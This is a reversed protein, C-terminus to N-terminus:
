DDRAQIVSDRVSKLFKIANTGGTGTEGVASRMAGTPDLKARNSSPQRKAMVVVYRTVMQIHAQRLQLLATLCNEYAATLLVNESWSRVYERINPMQEAKALFDRHKRPMYLRMEKLYDTKTSGQNEEHKVGLIIDVFAFLSSQANSPGCYKRYRGGDHEEFFVGELSRVSALNKTGELFPRLKHYFFNQSCHQYMRPLLSTMDNLTVTARELYTILQEADQNYAAEVAQLMTPILPAGCEEIALVTGFFGDEEASGTFSVLTQVSGKQLSARDDGLGRYNWLAQGAYTPVPPLGLYASVEIM